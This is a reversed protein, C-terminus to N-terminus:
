PRGGHYRRAVRPGVATLLEYSITGAREAQADLELPGGFFTGRDGVRVAGHPVVAMTMDMTVRGAIPVLRDGFAILGGNGLSRRVGDAYGAGLTVLDGREPARFTAGYSVTDGERIPGVAHVMADFRAVPEPTLAGARGGYLFIGPRAVTGAYRGGWQAAASNAAHIIPPRTPGLAALAEEFRHWQVGTAAADADASHFHTFAGEYGGRDLRGAIARLQSGDHWPIGGRGMGTDLSLHFPGGGGALWQELDAVGGIAPRAGASRYGEAASAVFPLFVVIPREIGASRLERAEALSAVGFGWPGLPELARAVAVAGLGYGNAKVMPLLPVGVRRGYDRANRVLAGLDVELWPGHDPPIEGEAM